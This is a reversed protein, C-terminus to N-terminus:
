SGSLGVQREFGVPSVGGSSCHRRKPNYFTEVYDFMDSRAADGAMYTKQRVRERKLLQFSSEAVANDHCNGCRSISCVIGRVEPVGAM